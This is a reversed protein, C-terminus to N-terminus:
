LFNGNHAEAERHRSMNFSMSLALALPGTFKHGGEGEVRPFVRHGDMPDSGEKGAEMYVLCASHM